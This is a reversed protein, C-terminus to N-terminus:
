TSNRKGKKIQKQLENVLPTLKHPVHIHTTRGRRGKGGVWADLLGLDHLKQVYSWLQTHKRPKLGLLQCLESYASEAEGMTVYAADNAQILQATSYLLLKENADLGRIAQRVSHDLYAADAAVVKELKIRHEGSKSALTYSAEVLHLAHGMDGGVSSQEVIYNKADDEFLNQLGALRLRYDLIDEVQAKTYPKIELTQKLLGGGSETPPGRVCAVLMVPRSRVSENLEMFRSLVQHVHSSLRMFDVTIVLRLGGESLVRGLEGVLAEDSVGETNKFPSVHNLVRTLFGHVSIPFPTDLHVHCLSREGGVDLSAAVRAVTECVATKGVGGPGVVLLGVSDGGDHIFSELARGLWALEAERFPLRPPVYLRSIKHTDVVLRNIIRQQLFM